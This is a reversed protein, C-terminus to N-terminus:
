HLINTFLKLRLAKAKEGCHFNTYSYRLVSYKPLYAIM